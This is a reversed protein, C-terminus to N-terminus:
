MLLFFRGLHISSPIEWSKLSPIASIIISLFRITSLSAIRESFEVWIPHYFDSSIHIFKDVQSKISEVVKPHSHGTSCVAIGSAFDIFRNGDVDWVESGKGHDMVFPYARPYSPSIAAHDRELIEKAKIGPVNLPKM